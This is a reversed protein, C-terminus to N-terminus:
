ECFKPVFFKGRPANALGSNRSKKLSSHRGYGGITVWSVFIKWVTKITAEALQKDHQTVCFDRDNKDDEVRACIRGRPIDPHVPARKIGTHGIYLTSRVHRVSMGFLRAPNNASHRNYGHRTNTLHATRRSAVM